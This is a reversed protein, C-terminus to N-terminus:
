PTTPELGVASVVCADEAVTEARVSGTQAMLDVGLDVQAM